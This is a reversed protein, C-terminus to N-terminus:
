RANAPEKSASWPAGFSVIGILVTGIGLVALLAPALAVAGSPPVVLYADYVALGALTSVSIARLSRRDNRFRSQILALIPVVSGLVFAIMAIAPWPWRGRVVLWVAERPLDGYWIVLVAMFDIYTLGLVSALLLAGVDGIASDDEAAPAWVAAWALAAVLSSVAVSAGFSSSTFPAERSLYWDISLISIVTAHFVLGVAALLQGRRGGSRPMFFALASWGVLALMSRLIFGPLNLYASLVDPKINDPRHSWPYLLPISVFLPLALLLLLPMAMSTSQVVPAIIEGWGGSTLRHIMMLSLSGVMLQAWFAFGVLWGAAALGPNNIACIVLGAIACAAGALLIKSIKGATM